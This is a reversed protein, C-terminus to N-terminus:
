RLRTDGLWVEKDCMMSISVLGDEIDIELSPAESGPGTAKVVVVQGPALPITDGEPELGLLIEHDTRNAIPLKL